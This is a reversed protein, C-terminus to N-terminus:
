TSIPASISIASICYECGMSPPRCITLICSHSRALGYTVGGAGAVPVAALARGIFARRAPESPPNIFSWAKHVLLAPASVVLAILLSGLYLFLVALLGWGVALLDNLRYERSILWLASGLVALPFQGYLLRRLWRQQWWSPQLWRLLALDLLFVIVYLAMFSFAFRM